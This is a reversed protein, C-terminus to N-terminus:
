SSLRDNELELLSIDPLLPALEPLETVDNLGLRELFHDTTRYLVAGTAPDAGAEAVLGRAILTRMVGDVNVGRINSIRGRSVPQRYAVVALTELAAQTLRTQQGDLVFREVFPACEGRTYLRWGGAAQRLEFGRTGEDYHGALQELALTVLPSPVELASAIAEATVPEDIVLLIAEIGVQLPINEPLAPRQTPGVPQRGTTGVVPSVGETEEAGARAPDLASDAGGYALGAEDINGAAATIDVWPSDRFTRIDTMEADIEGETM